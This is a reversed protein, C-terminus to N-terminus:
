FSMPERRMKLRTKRRQERHAHRLLIQQRLEERVKRFAAALSHDSDVAHIDPGPVELHVAAFFPPNRDRYKGLLVHATAISVLEHLPELLKEVDTRLDATQRIQLTRLNLKM